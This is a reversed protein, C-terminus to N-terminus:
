ADARPAVLPRILRALHTMRKRNLGLDAYGFRSASRFHIQMADDDVLFEVDDVFRCIRTKFTAHLHRRDRSVIETRPEAEVVRAIIDIVDDPTVGFRIPEMRQRSRQAQTSVCNPYVPCPALGGGTDRSGTAM